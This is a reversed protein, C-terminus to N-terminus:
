KPCCALRYPAPNPVKGFEDECASPSTPANKGEKIVSGYCVAQYTTSKTGDPCSIAPGYKFTCVKKNTKPNDQIEWAGPCLDGELITPQRGDACEPTGDSSVTSQKKTCASGMSLVLVGLPLLWNNM